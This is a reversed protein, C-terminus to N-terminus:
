ILKLSVQARIFESKMYRSHGISPVVVFVTFALTYVTMYISAVEESPILYYIIMIIFVGCCGIIMALSYLFIHFEAKILSIINNKYYSKKQFWIWVIITFYTTGLLASTLSIIGTITHSSLARGDLTRCICSVGHFINLITVRSHMWIDGSYCNLLLLMSCPVVFGQMNCLTWFLQPKNQPLAFALIISNPILFGFLLIWHALIKGFRNKTAYCTDFILDVGILVSVSISCIIADRYGKAELYINKEDIHEENYQVLVLVLFSTVFSAFVTYHVVQIVNEISNM